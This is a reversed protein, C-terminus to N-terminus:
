LTLTLFTITVDLLTVLLTGSQLQFILLVHHSADWIEGDKGERCEKHPPTTHCPLNYISHIM